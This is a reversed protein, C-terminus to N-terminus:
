SGGVSQPETPSISILFSKRLTCIWKKRPENSREIRDGDHQCAWRDTERGDCVFWLCVTREVQQDLHRLQGRTEEAKAALEATSIQLMDTVCILANCIVELSRVLLVFKVGLLLQMSAASLDESCGCFIRFEVFWAPHVVARCPEPHSRKESHLIQCTPPLHTMNSLYAATHHRIPPGTASASASTPESVPGGQPTSFSFALSSETGESDETGDVIRSCPSFIVNKNNSGRHVANFYLINTIQVSCTHCSLEVM